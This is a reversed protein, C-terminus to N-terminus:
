LEFSCVSLSYPESIINKKEIIAESILGCLRVPATGGPSPRRLSSFQLLIRFIGYCLNRSGKTQVKKRWLGHIIFSVLQWDGRM